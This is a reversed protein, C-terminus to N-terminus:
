EGLWASNGCVYGGATQLYQLNFDQAQSTYFSIFYKVGRTLERDVASPGSYPLQNNAEDWLGISANVHRDSYNFSYHGDTEPIFIYYNTGDENLPLKQRGM